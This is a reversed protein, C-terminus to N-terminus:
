HVDDSRIEVAYGDPKDNRVFLPIEVEGSM